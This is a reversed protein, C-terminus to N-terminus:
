LEHSDAAARNAGRGYPLVLAAALLGFAGAAGFAAGFGFTDIVWGLLLRQVRKWGQYVPIEM